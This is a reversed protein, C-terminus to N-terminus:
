TGMSYFVLLDDPDTHFAKSFVVTEIWQQVGFWLKGM